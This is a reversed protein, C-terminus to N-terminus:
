RAGKEQEQVPAYVVQMKDFFDPLLKGIQAEIDRRLNLHTAQAGWTSGSLLLLTRPRTADWRPTLAELQSRRATNLHGRLEERVFGWLM